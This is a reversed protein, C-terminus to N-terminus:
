ERHYPHGVDLCHARYLQEVLVLRAIEHALTLGSLSWCADAEERWSPALGEAGGIVFGLLPLGADRGKKLEALVGRTDVARGREDLAVLRGRGAKKKEKEWTTRLRGAEESQAEARDRRGEAPSVSRFAIPWASKMRGALEEVLPEYRKDDRRSVRLVLLKM